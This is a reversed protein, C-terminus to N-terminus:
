NVRSKILLIIGIFIVVIALFQTPNLNEKLFLKSLLLVTVFLAGVCLPYVFNLNNQSLLIMGSFTAIASFALGTIVFRNTIIKLINKLLIPIDSYKIIGIENIGIKFFVQGIAGTIAGITILIILSAM